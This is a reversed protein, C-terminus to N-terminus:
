GMNFDEEENNGSGEGDEYEDEDEDEDVTLSEVECKRAYCHGEITKDDGGIGIGTYLGNRVEEIIKDIDVDCPGGNYIIKKARANAAKQTSHVSDITTIGKGTCFDPASPYCIDIVIFVTNM